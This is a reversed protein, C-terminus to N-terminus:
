FAYSLAAAPVLSLVAGHGSVGLSSGTWYYGVNTELEALAAIRGFGVRLGVTLAGDVRHLRADFEAGSHLQPHAMHASGYTYGARLGVWLDYIGSATRGFVASVDGGVVQGEPVRLDPLTGQLALAYFGGRAQAGLSLAWDEDADTWFVRRAGLRVVRGGLLALQAEAGHGLGVRASVYSALGAPTNGFALAGQTLAERDAESGSSGSLRAEAETAEHLARAEVPALYGGGVDVVVREAQLVRAPTLVPNISACASGLLAVLALPIPSFLKV